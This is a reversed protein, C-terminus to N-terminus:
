PRSGQRNGTWGTQTKGSLKAATYITTNIVSEAFGGRDDASGQPARGIRRTYFLQERDGGTITFQFIDLGENFFPRKEPFFTEFATLNVEAADAEVQGFDPNFTATLTLASTIGINVDAGMAAQRNLGTAFPNGTESPSRADTLVTYPLIEVRRRPEVGRIGVLDGFLSVIGSANKPRLKWQQMENRRNIFRFVNFGFVNEPAKSFRLQSFPIRFEATWGQSDRSTAVDWVADWSNDSNNDDFLYSDRKVGAPNVSFQFATRRDHYSDIQVGIWDSPSSEDRRTLQAAIQEPNSDFARVGVYLAADTYVVRVETRETGPEGEDPDRQIFDTAVPARAWVQDDLVGDLEPAGRVARIASAVKPADVAVGSAAQQAVLETQPTIAVVAVALYVALYVNMFSMLKSREEGGLTSATGLHEGGVKPSSQRKTLRRLYSFPKMDQNAQTNNYFVPRERILIAAFRSILTCTASLQSTVDTLENHNFSIRLM